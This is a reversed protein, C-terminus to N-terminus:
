QLDECFREIEVEEANNILNYVPAADTHHQLSQSSISWTWPCLLGLLTTSHAFDCKCDFGMGM